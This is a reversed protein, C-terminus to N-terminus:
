KAPGPPGVVIEIMKTPDIWKLLAANVEELTLAKVDSCFKEFAAKPEKGRLIYHLVMGHLQDVTDSAIVRKGVMNDKADELEKPTVGKAQWEQILARTCALGEKLSGPSFTGQVSFLSDTTSSVHQVNAYIGYTGLGKVERVVHMLRATMGGGLISAAAALAVSDKHDQHIPITQGMMMQASGYGPLTVHKSMSCRPLANWALTTKPVTDHAPFIEGLTAAAGTTPAVITCYVNDGSLWKKHFERLDGASWSQIRKVRDDLCENYQTNDFAARIFHSKTQYQQDSSLSRLESLMHRKQLEVHEETFEPRSWDQGFMISGARKLLNTALPMEMSMHVFEHDHTFRRESHLRTLASTTTGEGHKGCGLNSVLLSAMDHEEPSYRASLTARVYNARPVHLINTAASVPRVEWTSAKGESRLLDRAPPSLTTKSVMPRADLKPKQMKTPIVHTVTMKQEQFVHEALRQVDAPTITDLTHHRDQFDTWRGMSVSRGLENMMDTVSETSRNWDDRLSMKITELDDKTVPHTAFSQLTQLMREEVSVRVHKSTQEMTGHFFWLYPDLQRPSYTSVDHLTGDTMLPKARGEDNYWTLRSICKLVLADKSAGRPQPFAMCIMPCPAAINLHVARRGEQTPEVTHVNELEPGRPMEGFHTNVHDLVTKPDFAGAFILTTNNPTYYTKRFHEMDHASTRTVDMKTGITSHHYPHELIAVSSTTRFMKNGAQQGRELENLVANREIPIKEAPVAAEQFRQADIEITQPTQHPLHVVYFRTSDMNTEANIVDGKSALSWIKGKQIRFSMHEIFHAAGMPTIGDEDASGARVARMYGCVAADPVPCLLVQLGNKSHTYSVVQSSGMKFAEGPVWM